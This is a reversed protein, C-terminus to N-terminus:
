HSKAKELQGRIIEKELRLAQLDPNDRLAQNVTENITIPYVSKALGLVLFISLLLRKKM